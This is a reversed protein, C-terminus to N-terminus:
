AAENWQRILEEAMPNDRLAEKAAREAFDNKGHGPHKVRKRFLPMGGATFKMAQMKRPKIDHAKSGAMLIRATYVAQVSARKQSANKRRISRETKGTKKPVYRRAKAATDDAWRRGVPKFVTRIAKFRRRLERSGKLTAV